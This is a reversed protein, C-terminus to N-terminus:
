QDWGIRLWSSRSVPWTEEIPTGLTRFISQILALESGSEGADFLTKRTGNIALHSEAVVCGAAWMDLSSNYASNGFLLEPPRYATTGVDTIKKSAPESDPDGEMWAIGFDALYAPGSPSRLLINSPKIDRHIIGLSHIHAIASFLNHLNSKLQSSSILKEDLCDELTLVLFEFVLIFQGGPQQFTELLSIVNIHTALKLLRAERLSNHPPPMHSPTTVKLALAQSSHSSHKRASFITSFLGSKHYTAIYPGITQTASSRKDSHLPESPESFESPLQLQRIATDWLVYYREKPLNLMARRLDSTALCARVESIANKFATEEITTARSKVESSNLEPFASKCASHRSPFRMCLSRNKIHTCRYHM